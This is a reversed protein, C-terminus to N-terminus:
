HVTRKRGRRPADPKKAPASFEGLVEYSRTSCGDTAVSLRADRIKDGGIFLAYDHAAKGIPHIRMCALSTWGLADHQVLSAPSLEVVGMKKPDKFLQGPGPDISNTGPVDATGRLYRLVVAKTDQAAGQPPQATMVTGCGAIAVSSMVCAILLLLHHYKVPKTRQRGKGCPLSPPDTVRKPNAEIAGATL